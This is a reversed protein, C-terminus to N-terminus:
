SATKEDMANLKALVEATIDTGPLAWIVATDANLVLRLHRKKALEAVVAGVHKNLDGQSQRQLAQYDAQAQETARKLEEKQRDEDAQVRARKSASFVGGLQVLQTHTAELAKQQAALERAKTQRLTELRSNAAKAENSESLIRQASVYAIDGAAGAAPKTPILWATVVM